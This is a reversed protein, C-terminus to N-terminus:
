ESWLKIMAIGGCKEMRLWVYIIFVISIEVIILLLLLILNELVFYREEIETVVEIPSSVFFPTSNKTVAGNSVFFCNLQVM